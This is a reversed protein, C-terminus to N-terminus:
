AGAAYIPPPAYAVLGLSRATELTLIDSNFSPLQYSRIAARTNDDLAGTIPGTYAGRVKLARQVSSIFEPTLADPCPVEFYYTQGGAAIVQRTVTEYRPPTIITSGDPAFKAPAVQKSETISEILAPTVDKGYCAGERGGEPREGPPMLTAGEPVQTADPITPTCAALSLMMAMGPLPTIRAMIWPLILAPSPFPTLRM